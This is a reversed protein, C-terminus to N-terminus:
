WQAVCCIIASAYFIADCFCGFLKCCYDNNEFKRLLNDIYVNLFKPSLLNCQSLRSHIQVVHFICNGWRVCFNM